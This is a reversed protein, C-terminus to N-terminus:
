RRLMRKVAGLEERGLERLLVLVALFLLLTATCAALTIVLSHGPIAAGAVTAVAAALVVRLVTLGGVSAGFTIRVTIVAAAGGLLLAAASAASTYQLVHEPQTVTNLTIAVATAQAAWAFFTLVLVRGTHGAANLMACCLTVLSLGIVGWALWRLALGGARYTDPYLVDIIGAPRAALVAALGAGFILAFRLAGTATKKMLGEEKSSAAHAVLPFVVMALAILAQYPVLAFIQATGYHASLISAADAQSVGAPAVNAGFAKVILLDMRLLPATEGGFAKVMLLDTRMLLNVGLQHLALPAVFAIMTRTLGSSRRRDTLARRGIFILAVVCILIAAFSYGALAGAVSGLLAAGSLMAALRLTAYSADFGAQAGFRQRGNLSGICVAYLAYALAIPAAMRYLPGLAPDAEARAIWPAGVVLIATAALGTVLFLGLGARLVAGLEEPRAATYRSAGQIASSVMVNNLISVLGVVVLFQGFEVTGLLRPLVFYIAWGALMFHLKAATLWIFGRGARGVAQEDGPSSASSGM